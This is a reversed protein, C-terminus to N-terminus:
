IINIQNNQFNNSSINPINNNLNNQKNNINMNNNINNTQINDVVKTEKESKNELIKSGSKLSSNILISFNQRPFYIININKKFAVCVTKDRYKIFPVGLSRLINENILIVEKENKIIDDLEKETNYVNIDEVIEEKLDSFDTNKHLEVLKDKLDGDDEKILNELENYKLEKMLKDIPEKDVIYLEIYKLKMYNKKEGESNENTKNIIESDLNNKELEDNNKKIEKVLDLIEKIKEDNDDDEM